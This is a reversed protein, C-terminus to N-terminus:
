FMSSTLLQIGRMPRVRRHQLLISPFRRHMGLLYMGVTWCQRGGSLLLRRRQQSMCLIMQM